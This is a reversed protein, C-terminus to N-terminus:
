GWGQHMQLGYVCEGHTISDTSQHDKGRDTLPGSGPCVWGLQLCVWHERTCDPASLIHLCRGGAQQGLGRCVATGYRGTSSGRLVGQVGEGLLVPEWQGQLRRLQVQHVQGPGCRLGLAASAEPLAGPRHAAQLCSCPSPAAAPWCSWSGRPCVPSPTARLGRQPQLSPRVEGARRMGEGGEQGWAQEGETRCAQLCGKESYFNNGNGLCGGYLFTECAM